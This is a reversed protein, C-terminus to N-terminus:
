YLRYINYEKIRDHEPMLKVEQVPTFLGIKLFEDGQVLTCDRYNRIFYHLTEVPLREM